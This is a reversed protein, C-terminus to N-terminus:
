SSVSPSAVSYEQMIRFLFDHSKVRHLHSRCLCDSCGFGEVAEGELSIKEAIACEENKDAGKVFVKLIKASPSNLLYDIHWFVHKEKRLHREIRKELAVQASGVYAYLGKEFRVAGLKGVKVDADSGLRIILVYIGKVVFV